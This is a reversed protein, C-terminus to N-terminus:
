DTGLKDLRAAFHLSRDFIWSAPQPYIGLRGNWSAVTLGLEAFARLWRERTWYNFPLAVGFRSNGVRDMFRLTADALLGDATHDKIVVCRRAVRAAERLLTMPDSTHHLVDVFMVADFGCHPFPLTTGDFAGVPIRTSNRVLVDVGSITLDARKAIVAAAVSGDGCGVDLVNCGRPLLKALHDAIIRVRRGFVYGGHIREIVSM